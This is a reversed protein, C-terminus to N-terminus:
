VFLWSPFPCPQPCNLTTPSLAPAKCTTPSTSLVPCPVVHVHLKAQPDGVIASRFGCPSTALMLRHTSLGFPACLVQPSAAVDQRSGSSRTQLESQACSHFVSLLGPPGQRYYREGKRARSLSLLKYLVHRLYRRLAERCVPSSAQFNSISRRFIATPGALALRGFQGGKVTQFRGAPPPRRGLGAVKAELNLLAMLKRRRNPM